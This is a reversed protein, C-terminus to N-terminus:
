SAHLVMGTERWESGNWREIPATRRGAEQLAKRAKKTRADYLKGNILVYSGPSKPNQKMELRGQSDRDTELSAPHSRRAARADLGSDWLPGRPTM